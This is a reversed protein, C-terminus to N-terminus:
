VVVDLLLRSEVKNETETTTDDLWRELGKGGLEVALLHDASLAVGAEWGTGLSVILGGRVALSKAVGNEMKICSLKGRYIVAAFGEEDREMASDVVIGVRGKAAVVGSM